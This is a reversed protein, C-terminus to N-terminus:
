RKYRLFETDSISFDAESWRYKKLFFATGSVAFIGYRYRLFATDSYPSTKSLRGGSFIATFHFVLHRLFETLCKAYDNYLLASKPNTPSILLENNAVVENDM